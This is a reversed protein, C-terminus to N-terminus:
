ETSRRSLTSIADIHIKAFSSGHLIDKVLDTEDHTEYYVSPDQFTLLDKPDRLYEMQEEDNVSLNCAEKVSRVNAQVIQEDDSDDLGAELRLKDNVWEDLIQRAESVRSRQSVHGRHRRALKVLTFPIRRKPTSLRKIRWLKARRDVRRDLSFPKLPTRRRMKSKGYGLTSTM